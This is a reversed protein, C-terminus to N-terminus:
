LTEKLQDLRHRVTGDIVTDGITAVIGASSPRTSSWRSRSTRAPRGASRRARAAAGPRRRAAVASRVEAVEHERSQPPSSSSGRRRDRAPRSWSRRRRHVGRDRADDAAVRNELLDDVIAARRDVPQGPNSSRWGCTTTARSSGRSASCSTKSRTSTAKPRRSRSCRRRASTSATPWRDTAGSRTSSATSSSATAHRQRPQARRHPGALDISLAAVDTRLEAMAQNRQNAIDAQARARIENAEQRPAPSSTADCRRPRRAPRRSSAPRGRGQRRRDARPVAGEGGRGRGQGERGGRPRQPHPGRTGEGHEERGARRVEVHRRAARRVRASGWIIENKRRCCRRRRRRATTSRRRRGEDLKEVCQKRPRPRSSRTTTTEAAYAPAAVVFVALAIGVVAILARIRKRM